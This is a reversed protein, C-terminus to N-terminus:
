ERLELGSWEAESLWQKHILLVMTCLILLLEFSLIGVCYQWNDRIQRIMKNAATGICQFEHHFQQFVM